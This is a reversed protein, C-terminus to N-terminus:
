SVDLIHTTIPPRTRTPAHSTKVSSAESASTRHGGIISVRDKGPSCDNMLYFCQSVLLAWLQMRMFPSFIIYVFFILVGEAKKAVIALNKNGTSTVNEKTAFLKALLLETIKMQEQTAIKFEVIPRNPYRKKLEALIGEGSQLSSSTSTALATAHEGKSW